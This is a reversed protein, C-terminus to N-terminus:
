ISEHKINLFLAKKQKEWNNYISNRNLTASMIETCFRHCHKGNLYYHALEHFVIVRLKNIFTELLPSILSYADTGYEKKFAIGIAKDPPYDSYIGMYHRSIKDININYKKAEDMFERVYPLLINDVEISSTEFILETRTEGIKKEFYTGKNENVFILM